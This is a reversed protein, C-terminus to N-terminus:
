NVRRSGDTDVVTAPSLTTTSRTSHSLHSARGTSFARRVERQFDAVAQFRDDKSHSLAKMAAEALGAPIGEGAWPLPLDGAKLNRIDRIRGHIVNDLVEFQNRGEIPMDLTLIQYLIAGLAYVDTRADIAEINGIAQEPAMYQPTGLTGVAGTAFEDGADRRASSVLVRESGDVRVVNADMGLPKSLGWDIVLVEGYWGVMINDPKLDRHVVGRSHAFAIADCAKGLIRLLEELTFRSITKPDGRQMEALLKGLTMGDFLKMTFFPNERENVNIDYIPVVNPHSLQATVQAEEVFRAIQEPSDVDLLVKMAVTRRLSLDEVELVAGMGGMAIMRKVLYRRDDRLEPPLFRWVAEIQPARDEAGTAEMPLRRLFLDVNGVRVSQRPFILTPVLVKEEGVWTGNSSGLDEIVWDSYRLTLRAHKRSVKAADVPIDCGEERGIVYDGPRLKGRYLERAGRMGIVETYPINM